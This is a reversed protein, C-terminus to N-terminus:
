RQPLGLNFSEPDAVFGVNQNLALTTVGWINELHWFKCDRTDGKYLNLATTTTQDISVWGVVKLIKQKQVLIRSIGGGKISLLYLTCPAYYYM